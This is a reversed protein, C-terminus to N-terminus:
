ILSGMSKLPLLLAMPTGVAWTGVKSSMVAGSHEQKFNLFNTEKNLRITYM